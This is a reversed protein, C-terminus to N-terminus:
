SRLAAKTDQLGPAYRLLDTGFRHGDAACSPSARGRGGHTRSICRSGCIFLVTSAGDTSTDTPDERQEHGIMRVSWGSKFYDVAIYCSSCVMLDKSGALPGHSRRPCPIFLACHAQSPPSVMEGGHRGMRSEAINRSELHVTAGIKGYTICSSKLCENTTLENRSRLM